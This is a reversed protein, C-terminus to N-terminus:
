SPPTHAEPRVSDLLMAQYNMERIIHTAVAKALTYGLLVGVAVSSATLCAVTVWQDHSM